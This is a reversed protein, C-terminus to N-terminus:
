TADKSSAPLAEITPARVEFLRDAAFAMLAPERVVDPDNLTEDVAITLPDSEAPPAAVAALKLVAPPTVAM